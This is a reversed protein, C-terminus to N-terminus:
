CNYSFLTANKDYPHFLLEIMGCLILFLAAVAGFLIFPLFYAMFGFIGFFVSSVTKGVIGGLGFNSLVLLICVALLGLIIIEGRIEDRNQSQGSKQQTKKTTSKTNKKGKTSKAAM